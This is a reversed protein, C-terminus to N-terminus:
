TSPWASLADQEDWFRLGQTVMVGLGTQTCLLLFANARARVVPHLANL